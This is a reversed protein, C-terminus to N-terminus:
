AHKGPMLKLDTPRLYVEFGRQAWRRENAAVDFTVKGGNHTVYVVMGHQFSANLIHTLATTANAMVVTDYVGDESSAMLTTKSFRRTLKHRHSDGAGKALLVLAAAGLVLPVIM